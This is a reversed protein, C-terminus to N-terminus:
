IGVPANAQATKAANYAQGYLHANMAMALAATFVVGIFCAIMGLMAIIGTVIGGLLAMLYPGPAARVLGFIEGFRLGAGIEGSVVFNAYAAPMVVGLFISYLFSFCGICMSVIGVGAVFAGGADSSSFDPNTALVNFIGQCISIFISPLAFVLGIVFAKVGRMFHDMFDTWDPLLDTVQGMILRRTIELSWGLVAIQGLIPVLMALAAIGVKKMWDSDEFVYSFARGFDM